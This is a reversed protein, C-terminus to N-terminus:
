NSDELYDLAAQLRGETEIHGLFTNCGLCLLGRVKGTKHCHDVAVAERDSCILCKGDQEFYMADWMSQDVGYNVILYRGNGERSPVCTLCYKGRANTPTFPSWCQECKRDKFNRGSADTVFGM